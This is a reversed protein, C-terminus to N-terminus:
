WMYIWGALIGTVLAAWPEVVGCGSTTSVLGALAGNMAMKLSFSPEGTRKEEFYLNTFLASVGGGAGALATSVAANAAIKGVYETDLLLASGGNFGFWGFWLIMTGLLQLATSHGPMPKPEELPEGQADFFRGRRPGLIITAYLAVAGGTCCSFLYLCDSPLTLCSCGFDSEDM